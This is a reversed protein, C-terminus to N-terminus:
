QKVFGTSLARHLISPERTSTLSYNLCRLTLLHQCASIVNADASVAMACTGIQRAENMGRSPTAVFRTKELAHLSDMVIM